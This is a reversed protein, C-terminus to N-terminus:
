MVGKNMQEARMATFLLLSSLIMEEVDERNQQIDMCVNTITEQKHGQEMMSNYRSRSSVARTFQSPTSSLTPSSFSM